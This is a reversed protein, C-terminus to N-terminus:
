KKITIFKYKNQRLWGLTMNLNTINTQFEEILINIYLVRFGIDIMNIEFMYWYIAPINSLIINTIIIVNNINPIIQPTKNINFNSNININECFYNIKFYFQAANKSNLMIILQSFTTFFSWLYVIVHLQNFLLFYTMITNLFMYIYKNYMIVLRIFVMLGVLYLVFIESKKNKKYLLFEETMEKHGEWLSLYGDVTEDREERYSRPLTKILIYQLLSKIKLSNEFYYNFFIFFLLFSFNFYFTFPGFFLKLIVLFFTSLLFEQQFKPFVSFNLFFVFHSFFINFYFFLSIFLIKIKNLEWNRFQLSESFFTFKKFKKM